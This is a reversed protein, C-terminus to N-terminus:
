DSPTLESPDTMAEIKTLLERAATYGGVGSQILRLHREAIRWLLTDQGITGAWLKLKVLASNDFPQVGADASIEDASTTANVEGWTLRFVSFTQTGKEDVGETLTHKWLQYLGNLINTGKAEVQPPMERDFLDRYWLRWKTSTGPIAPSPPKKKSQDLFGM